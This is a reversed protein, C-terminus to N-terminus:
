LINVEFELKIGFRELVSAQVNKAHDFIEAGTANGHNVIILAQNKYNGTNGVVKGKWGCQEILWGAPIKVMEGAAYSPVEEHKLKIKQYVSEEVVPNKFFSGSNGLIAPDPLKAKRIAIVANSVDTITAVEIEQHDLVLKIAGYDTKVEFVNKILKVVISTIFFRGKYQAQKFISNRYGFQCSQKNFIVHKKEQLDYAHVGVIYDKIEVGYAGINQIPSAGVTGPILSLNEFGAYGKDVTWLVTEHWNEGGGIQLIVGEDNEELIDIGVIENKLVCKTIDKTLLLNSGGGLIFYDQPKGQLKQLQDAQTIVKIETANVDVGFTNFAKLSPM